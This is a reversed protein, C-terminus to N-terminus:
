GGYSRRAQRATVRAMMQELENLSVKLGQMVQERAGGNGGQITITPSFHVTITPGGTSAGGTKGGARATQIRSVSAAAKAQLASGAAARSAIATADGIGIGIAARQAIDGRPRMSVPSPSGIGFTGARWNKIGGGSRVVSDKAGDVVPMAAREKLVSGPAGHSAIPSEGGNGIVTGQTVHGQAANEQVVNGSTADTVPSRSGIGLKDAIWNKINDVVGFIADKVAALKERIGNILGDVIDRGIALFREPLEAVSTWLEGLYKKAAGVVKGFVESIKDWNRYILYGATAIGAVIMGIPSTLFLRGVWLLIRGITLASRLLIGGLVRGLGLATRFFGGLGSAMQGGSWLSRLLTWKSTFLAIVTKFINWASLVLNVGFLAGLGIARFGAIGIALGAIAQVVGPHAQAWENVRAIIPTLTNMLTVLPPLLANGVTIGLEVLQTKMRDWAMRATESRRVFDGDITGRAQPSAIAAKNQTYKDGGEQMALVHNVSRTDQFIEGLRNSEMLQRQTNEDGRAAAEKWRKVFADGRSEILKMAIALSAEYGSNGEAVLSSMSQRYDIGASEYAKITSPASMHAVWSRMNAMAEEGSGASERGVALSAMIQTLADQGTIGEAAFAANLEPLNQELDKLDLRGIKSGYTVRSFAEKVPDEGKIGLTETFSSTMRTLDTIESQTATAVKGIVGAYRGADGPKMGATVLARTGDLIADHSQNSTIAAERLTKGLATEEQRSLNGAIAIDRLKAQFNAAQKVASIMPAAVFKVAGIASPGTAVHTGQSGTLQSWIAGREQRMANGRARLDTLTRQQGKVQEITRGLQEHQARLEGTNRTPGNRTRSSRPQNLAKGLHTHKARLEGSLQGLDRLTTRTSSFLTGFSAMIGARFGNMIGAGSKVGVYFKGAM